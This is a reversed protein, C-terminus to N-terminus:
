GDDEEKSGLSLVSRSILLAVSIALTQEADAIQVVGVGTFRLASTVADM